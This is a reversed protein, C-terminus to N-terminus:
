SAKMEKGAFRVYEKKFVVPVHGVPGDRNKDVLLWSDNIESSDKDIDHHILIVTDADKEFQSAGYIDAITPRRNASDRSLQAASVVAINLDRSLQKLAMSVQKYVEHEKGGPVHHSIIQAYDIFLVRIGHQRVMRRAQARVTMLDANPEDYIYLPLSDLHGAADTIKEFDRRRLFGSSLHQSDVSAVDAIMRITLEQKGSELSMIGCPHGDQAAKRAFNFLLATKGRSPRACVLYNRRPNWGLTLDDLKGIGSKVGPIEGGSNYREEIKAIADGLVDRIPEVTYLTGADSVEQLKEEVTQFIQQSDAGDQLQASINKALESAVRKRYQEQLKQWYYSWNATTPVADAVESVLSPSVYGALTPQDVQVGGAVLREIAFFMKRHQPDTFHEKSINMQYYLQDNQILQSLIAKEPNM